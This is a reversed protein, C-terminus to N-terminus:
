QGGELSHHTEKFSEQFVTLDHNTGFFVIDGTVKYFDFIKQATTQKPITYGNEYNYLTDRSIGIYKSAEELTLGTNARLAKLTFKM